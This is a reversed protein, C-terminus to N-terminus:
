AAVGDVRVCEPGTMDNCMANVDVAVAQDFKVLELIRGEQRLIATRRTRQQISFVQPCCVPAPPHM